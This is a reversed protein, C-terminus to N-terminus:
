TGPELNGVPIREPGKGRYASRFAAFAKEDFRDCNALKTWATLTIRGGLEPLPALVMGNRSEDYFAELQERIRPGVEEGYHIVVGGHELNHPEQVLVVPEAYSGWIVPQQYHTGSTPPVSNYKVKVDYSAVHRAAQEPYTKLTCGAAALTGAVAQEGEGRSVLVVLGAAAAGLVLAAAAAILAPKRRGAPPRADRRKPGAQRRPPAPVQPKEAM